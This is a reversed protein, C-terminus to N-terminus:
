DSCWSFVHTPPTVAGGNKIEVSFPPSHNPEREKRKKCKCLESDGISLLSSPGGALLRVGAQGELRLGGCSQATEVNSFPLKTKKLVFYKQPTNYIDGHFCAIKCILIATKQSTADQLSIINVSM